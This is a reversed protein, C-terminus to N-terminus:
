SAIVVSGGNRACGACRKEHRRLGRGAAPGAQQRWLELNLHWVHMRPVASLGCDSHHLACQILCHRKGLWLLM